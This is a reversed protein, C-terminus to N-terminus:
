VYHYDSFFPKLEAIGNVKAFLVGICIGVFILFGLIDGELRITFRKGTDFVMRRMNFWCLLSASDVFNISGLRIAATSKRNLDVELMETLMQMVFRRRSFDAMVMILFILNLTTLIM